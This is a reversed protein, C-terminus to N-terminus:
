GEELSVPVIGMGLVHLLLETVVEYMGYYFRDICQTQLESVAVIFCHRSGLSTKIESM